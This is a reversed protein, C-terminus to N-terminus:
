NERVAFFYVFTVGDTTNITTYIIKDGSSVPIFLSNSSYHDCRISIANVGNVSINMQGSEEYLRTAQCYLFGDSPCSFQQSKTLETYDSYDPVILKQMRKFMDFANAM